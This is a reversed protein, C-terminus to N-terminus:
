KEFFSLVGSSYMFERKLEVAFFFSRESILVLKLAYLYISM